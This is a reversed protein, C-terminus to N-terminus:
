QNCIPIYTKVNPKFNVLQQAKYIAKDLDSYISQYPLTQGTEMDTLLVRFSDHTTQIVTSQMLEDNNTFEAIKM